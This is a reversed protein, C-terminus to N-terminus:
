QLLEQQITLELLIPAMNTRDMKYGPHHRVLPSQHVAYQNSYYPFAKMRTVM